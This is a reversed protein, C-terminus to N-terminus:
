SNPHSDSNHRSTSACTATPSVPPCYVSCACRQSCHKSAPDTFRMGPVRQGTTTIVPDTIAALAEIGEAPDHSLRQVGLLRRNASFGIERLTPLHRLRKGIVFDYTDNITTETRLARRQQHYQKIRCHQYDIHLSPTVTDTIVRTRFVGPTNRRLQRHFILSVQDPRGIDLNDRITQEFFIRGSVPKDLMQTLSFEAQLVSLQYRYGAARNAPTFPHPLRALWKRLLADIVPETLGDCIAQVKVVEAPDEITAFGNDLATFAIGAKTAQRKAYENGNICL